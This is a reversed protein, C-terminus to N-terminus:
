CETARLRQNTGRPRGGLRQVSHEMWCLPHWPRGGVWHSVAEGRFEEIEASCGECLLAEHRPYDRGQM